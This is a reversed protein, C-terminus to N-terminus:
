ARGGSLSFAHPAPHPLVAPHGCWLGVIDGSRGPEEEVLAVFVSEVAARSLPTVPPEIGQGAFYERLPATDVMGMNYNNVRINEKRLALAWDTAFANLGWKTMDYIDLDPIGLSWSRTLWTCGAADADPHDAPVPWRCNHIHDTGIHIIHGSQQEIMRPVVLRGLALSARLNAAVLRDFTELSREVDDWPNTVASVAVNSVVLDLRGNGHDWAAEVVQRLEPLRTVDARVGHVHKGLEDAMGAVEPKVDCVTVRAGREALAEALYRGVGQYGGTVLASMNEDILL